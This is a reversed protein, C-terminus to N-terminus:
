TALAANANQLYHPRAYSQIAEAAWSCPDLHEARATFCPMCGQFFLHVKLGSNQLAVQAAPGSSHLEALLELQGKPKKLCSRATWTCSGRVARCTSAPSGSHPRPSVAAAQGRCGGPFGLRVLLFPFAPQCGPQIGHDWRSSGKGARKRGM